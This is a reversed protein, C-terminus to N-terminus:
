ECEYDFRRESFLIDGRSFCPFMKVTKSIRSFWFLLFSRETLKDAKSERHQRIKLGFRRGMTILALTTWLKQFFERERVMDLPATMTPSMIHGRDCFLTRTIRHHAPRKDDRRLTVTFNLVPLHHTCRQYRTLWRDMADVM